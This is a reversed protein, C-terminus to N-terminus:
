AETNFPPQKRDKRRKRISRRISLVVILAILGLPALYPLAVVLFIALEKLFTWLNRLSKTFGEGIRTWFGPEEVPTLEQVESISLTVTGYDVLNDYVLLQSTVQELETRIDTLRKELELLETLNAAKDILELLRAEEKQLAIMRSQTAVYSLTVDDSTENSSTVNSAGQVHAVFEDLKDKPIRLTLSASRRAAYNSYRSGTYVNKSETYGGLLLVKQNIASLLGDLDETEANISIRRILKRDTVAQPKSLNEEQLSEEADVQDKNLTISDYIDSTVSGSGFNEMPAEAYGVDNAAEMKAGCGALVSAVMLVSLMVAILKKSKM